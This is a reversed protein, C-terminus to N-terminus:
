TSTSPPESSPWRKSRSTVALWPPVRAKSAALTRLVLADIEDALGRVDRGGARKSKFYNNAVGGGISLAVIVVVMTYVDM